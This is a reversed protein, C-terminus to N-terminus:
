DSYHSSHSLVSLPAVGKKEKQRIECFWDACEVILLTGACCWLGSTIEV